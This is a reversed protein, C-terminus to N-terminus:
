DLCSRVFTTSEVSVEKRAQIERLEDTKPLKPPSLPPEFTRNERQEEDARSSKASPKVTLALKIRSKAAVEM